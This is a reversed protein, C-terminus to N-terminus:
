PIYLGQLTFQELLMGSSVPSVAICPRGSREKHVDYVFTHLQQKCWQNRQLNMGGSDKCKGYM